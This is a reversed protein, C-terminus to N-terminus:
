TKRSRVTSLTSYIGLHLYLLWTIAKSEFGEHLDDMTIHKSKEKLLTEREKRREETFGSLKNVHFDLREGLLRDLKATDSDARERAETAINQLLTLIMEDYPVPKAANTPPADPSPNTRLRDVESSFYSSGSEAVKPQIARLRALLVENCDVEAALQEM